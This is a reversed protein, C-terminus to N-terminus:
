SKKQATNSEVFYDSYARIILSLIEFPIAKYLQKELVPFYEPDSEPLDTIMDRTVVEGKDSEIKILAHLFYKYFKVFMRKYGDKEGEKADDESLFELHPHLYDGSDLEKVTVFFTKEIGKLVTPVELVKIEAEYAFLTKLDSMVKEKVPRVAKKPGSSNSISAPLKPAVREEPVSEAEPTLAEEEPPVIEIGNSDVNKTKHFHDMLDALSEGKGPAVRM